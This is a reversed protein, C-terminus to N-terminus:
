NSGPQGAIKSELYDVCGRLTALKPFDLEPIVIGFEKQVVITLTLFDVSDFEFQDRYRREPDLSALNAEPAIQGLIHLVRLEIQDRMTNGNAKLWYPVQVIDRTFTESLQKLRM